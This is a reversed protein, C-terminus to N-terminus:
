PQVKMAYYYGRRGNFKQEHDARATAEELTEYTGLHAMVVAEVGFRNEHWMVVYTEM